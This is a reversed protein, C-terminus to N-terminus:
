LLSESRLLCGSRLGEPGCVTRSCLGQPGRLSGPCLGEASRLLGACLVESPLRSRPLAARSLGTCLM